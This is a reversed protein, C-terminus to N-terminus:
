NFKLAAIIGCVGAAFLFKSFYDPIYYGRVWFKENKVLFRDPVGNKAIEQYWRVLNAWSGGSHGMGTTPLKAFIEHCIQSEDDALRQWKDQIDLSEMSLYFEISENDPNQHIESWFFRSSIDSFQPFNMQIM